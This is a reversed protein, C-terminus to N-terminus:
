GEQGAPLRVWLRVGESLEGGLGVENGLEDFVKKGKRIEDLLGARILAHEVTMGPMLDDYHKENVYVTM